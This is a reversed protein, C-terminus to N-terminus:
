MREVVRIRASRARPNTRIEDDDPTLPKRNLRRVRGREEESRFCQKAVRDESGHFAIVVLRGGVALQDIVMPLGRELCGLEDNVAMRLGLFTRTAPHHHRSGRVRKRVLDSLESTRLVPALRRAALIEDVVARASKEEGLTGIAFLLEDRSGQNVLDAASRRAGPDMRMDLPGDRDFSFGREAQDLQLSSVGLDILAADVQEIGLQELVPDLQDFRSHILRARSGFRELRQRALELIQPDRDTGVLQLDAAAELLRESHGGAGVTLDLVVAGPRLALQELVQRVMVPVHVGPDEAATM